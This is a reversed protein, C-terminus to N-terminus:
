LLIQQIKKCKSLVDEDNIPIGKKRFDLEFGDRIMKEAKSFAQDYNSYVSSSHYIPPVLIKKRSRDAGIIERSEYLFNPKLIRFFFEGNPLWMVSPDELPLVIEGEVELIYFPDELSPHGHINRTYTIYKKM